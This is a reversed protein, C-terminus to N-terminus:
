WKSIVEYNELVQNQINEEQIGNPFIKAFVWNHRNLVAYDSKYKKNKAEKYSSLIGIAKNFNAETQYLESLKSHEEISLFVNKFEGFSIKEKKKNLKLVKNETNLKLIKNYILRHPNESDTKGFRDVRHPNEADTFLGMEHPKENKINNEELLDNESAEIEKEEIQVQITQPNEYINYITDFQGKLNREKELILYGRDQLMKMTTYVSDRGDKSLATLGNLSFNWEPPLSLMISLLGKAKLSLTKDALHFNSMVTYNGTKHVRFVAGNQAKEM